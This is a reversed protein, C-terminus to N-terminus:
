ENSVEEVLINKIHNLKNFFISSEINKCNNHKSLFEKIYSDTYGNSNGWWEFNINRDGLTAIIFGDSSRWIGLHETRNYTMDNGTIFCHKTDEIEFEKEEKTFKSKEYRIKLM